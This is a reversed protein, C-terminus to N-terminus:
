HYEGVIEFKSTYGGDDTCGVDYQEGPELKIVKTSASEKNSKKDKLTEKITVQVRQSKSTNTVSVGKADPNGYSMTYCHSSKKYELVVYNTSCGYLLCLIILLKLKM